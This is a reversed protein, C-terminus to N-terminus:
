ENLVANLRSSHIELRKRSHVLFGENRFRKMLLRVRSQATGAMGAITAQSFEPIRTEPAAEEGFHALLLLVRALRMESSDFLQTVLKQHYQISRALLYEIFMDLLARERHLAHMMAEKDIQLLTCDTIATEPGMRLSQGAM